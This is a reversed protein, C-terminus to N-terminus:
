IVIMSLYYNKRFTKLIIIPKTTLHFIYICHFLDDILNKNVGINRIELLDNGTGWLMESVYENSINNKCIKLKIQFIDDINDIAEKTKAIVKKSDNDGDSDEIKFFCSIQIDATTDKNHFDTDFVEGNRVKYDFLMRLAHIMNSKGVDNMGFILNKNTLRVECNEFNRFNKILLKEFKM